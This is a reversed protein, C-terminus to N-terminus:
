FRSAMPYTLGSIIQQIKLSEQGPALHQVVVFSMGTDIPLNELLKRIPDLGGASAGIGVIPFENAVKIDSFNQLNSSVKKSKV